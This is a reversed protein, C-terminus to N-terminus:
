ILTTVVHLLGVAAFDYLQRHTVFTSRLVRRLLPYDQTPSLAISGKWYRMGDEGVTGCYCSGPLGLDFRAPELVFKGVQGRIWGYAPLLLMAEQQGAAESFALLWAKGPSWGETGM